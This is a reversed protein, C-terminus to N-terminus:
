PGAALRWEIQATYEGPTGSFAPIDLLLGQDVGWKVTHEPENEDTPATAIETFGSGLATDTSGRRFILADEIVNTGDTLKSALKATLVWTNPASRADTIGISWDTDARKIIQDHASITVDEFPLDEPLHSFALVGEVPEKYNYYTLNGKNAKVYVRSDRTKLRAVGARYAGAGDAALGPVSQIIGGLGSAAYNYEFIDVEAGPAASGAVVVGGKVAEDITLMGKGISLKRALIMNFNIDNLQPAGPAIGVAGELTGTSSVTTNSQLSTSFKGAITFPAIDKSNWIAHPDSSASRWLNIAQTKISFSATNDLAQILQASGNELCVSQPNDFIIKGRTVLYILPNTNGSQCSAFFSGTVTLTRIRIAAYGSGQYRYSMNGSVNVDINYSHPTFAGLGQGGTVGGRITLDLTGKVDVRADGYSDEVFAGQTTITTSGDKVTVGHAGDGHIDILERTTSTSTIRNTGSFTVFPTEVLEEADDTNINITCGNINVRSGRGVNYSLQRGNYTINNFNLTVSPNDSCLIGRYSHGIVDVDKLTVTISDQTADIAQNMSNSVRDELTMRHGNYPDTGDIILDKTIQAGGLATEKNFSVLGEGDNKPLTSDSGDNYGLYVKTYSGSEAAKKLDKANYVVCEDAPLARVLGMMFGSIAPCGCDCSAGVSDAPVCACNCRNRGPFRIDLIATGDGPTAVNERSARCPACGCTGPEPEPAPEPPPPAPARRPAKAKIEIELAIFSRREIGEADCFDARLKVAVKGAPADPAIRATWEAQGRNVGGLVVWNSDEDAEISAIEPPIDYPTLSLAKVFRTFDATPADLRSEVRLDGLVYDVPVSLTFREGAYARIADMRGPEISCLAGDGPTHEGLAPPLCIIILLLFCLWRGKM